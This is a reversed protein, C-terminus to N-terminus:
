QEKVVAKSSGFCWLHKNGRLFVKGEAFAPSAYFEDELQTRSVEAFERACGAVAIEGHTGVLYVRGEAITPSAQVEFEFDHEWLKKGERADFCALLGSGTATFVLEGDSVPSSIDPLYEEISWAVKTQTVEGAGDLALAILKASPSVVFVRDGAFVPSPTIEGDLAEARWLETGDSAAYSIVWPLGLTIIQSKGAAEIVIPTAWSAGVPRPKEWITRGTRGDLAVLKSLRDEPEAQDFQVIVHDQWTRLSTAHGYMNHPTGLARSWLAQGDLGFAAIDGTAFWAYVRKGDTAMTPACYGTMESIEPVEAPSGPVNTVAQRWQLQGTGTDLCFVERLTADGGSFYLRTGFVIPSNFGPAPSPVKWSVSTEDLHTPLNSVGAVGSGDFGRFGPWNRQLEEDTACDPASAVGGEAEVPAFLKSVEAAGSPLASKSGSAVAVFTAVVVLGCGALALRSQGRGQDLQRAALPNLQPLHPQKQLRRLQGAAILFVAAGGFLLYVGSAKFSLLRFYRQRLHLDLERIQTKLAENRPESRLQDKLQLLRPSKWPDSSKHELHALVMGAGVLVTFAAAVLTAWRWTKASAPRPSGGAPDVGCSM